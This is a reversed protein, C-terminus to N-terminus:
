PTGLILEKQFSEPFIQESREGLKQHSHATSLTGQSPAAEWCDRDRHIVQHEVGYADAQRRGIRILISSALVGEFGTHCQMELPRLQLRPTKFSM